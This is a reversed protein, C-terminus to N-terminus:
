GGSLAGRMQLHPIAREANLVFICVCDELNKSYLAPYRGYRQLLQNMREIDYQAIM